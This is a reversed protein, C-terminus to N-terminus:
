KPKAPSGHGLLDIAVIKYGALHLNRWTNSSESFGHLAFLVEGTGWIRVAYDFGDITIIKKDIKM